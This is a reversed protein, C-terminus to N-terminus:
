DGAKAAKDDWDQIITDLAATIQEEPIDMHWLAASLKQAHLNHIAEEIIATETWNKYEDMIKLRSLYRMTNPNWRYTKPTKM